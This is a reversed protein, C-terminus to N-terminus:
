AGGEPRGLGSPAYGGLPERSLYGLLELRALAIAAEAPSLAGELAVRDPTGAGREVLDLVRELAPELPAGVRRPSGAGVGALLDLVDQADRILAAGERIRENTGASVRMGVQGPVAGVERGLDLALNATVLTGSREAAEVVVVVGALAAMIRNRRPFDVKRPTTGPARDSVVAGLERIQEHLRRHRAPYVVDVGGALVAVTRGRAELAGRHAAGDIGLAMGSVVTVRCAALDAALREAVRIGYASARRSGVITVAQGPELCRVAERQGLGNLVPGGREGLDLLGSPYGPDAPALRWSM